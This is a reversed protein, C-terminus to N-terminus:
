RRPSSELMLAVIGHAPITYTFGPKVGEVKTTVPAVALADQVYPELDQGSDVHAGKLSYGAYVALVPEANM